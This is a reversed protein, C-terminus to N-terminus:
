EESCPLCTRWSRNGSPLEPRAIRGLAEGVDARVLLRDLARQAVFGGGRARRLWDLLGTYHGHPDLLVVPKEHM